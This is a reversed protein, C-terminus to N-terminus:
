EYKTNFNRQLEEIQEKSIKLTVAPEFRKIMGIQLALNRIRDETVAEQYEAQLRVLKQREIRLRREAEDKTKIDEEYSIKVVVVAIFFVTIIVILFLVYFIIPKSSKSM